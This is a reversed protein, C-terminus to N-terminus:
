KEKQYTREKEEEMTEKSLEFAAAARGTRKRVSKVKERLEWDASRDTFTKLSLPLISSNETGSSRVHGRMAPSQVWSQIKVM